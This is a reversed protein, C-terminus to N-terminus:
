TNLDASGRPASISTLRPLAAFSLSPFATLTLQVKRVRGAGAAVMVSCAVAEPVAGLRTGIRSWDDVTATPMLDFIERIEQAPSAIVNLDRLHLEAADSELSLELESGLDTRTVHDVADVVEAARLEALVARTADVRATHGEPSYDPLRDDADTRGIYTGVTPNLEVLTDVWREAIRDTDTQTREAM